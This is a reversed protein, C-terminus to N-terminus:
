KDRWIRRFHSPTMDEQARFLRIFHSTNTIGCLDAIENITCDSYKLLEKARNLRQMMLYDGITSGTYQKFKRLLHYKSVGSQRSLDDLSMKEPYHIDLIKIVQKIYDPMHQYRNNETQAALILQTLVLHIFSAIKVDCAFNNGRTLAIIEQMAQVMDDPSAPAAVPSGHNNFVQYVALSGPGQFHFWLFEWGGESDCEYYHHENCHIWFADGAKLGYQQNQYILRGTGSMTYVVLFSDLHDRETFYPPTTKFYGAEQIYLFVNRTDPLPTHILRVSDESWNSSFRELYQKM